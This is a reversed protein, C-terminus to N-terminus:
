KRQVLEVLTGEKFNCFYAGKELLEQIFVVEPNNRLKDYAENFDDASFATHMKGIQHLETKLPPEYPEILELVSDGLQLKALRLRLDPKEARRFEKFGLVKYSEVAADLSPVTIGFHEFKYNM